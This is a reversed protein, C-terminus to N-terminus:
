RPAPGPEALLAEILVLAPGDTWGRPGIAFGVARGDRAIVFTTPLGIVGYRTAIDGREDLVLPFTLGLEKAYRSIADRDERANIGVIAVGKAALERHLRELVPLEPRCERCWSAWFNVVVVKGRLQGLSLSGGDLTRATFSPPETGPPHTVLNLQKVLSPVVSEEAVAPATAILLLLAARLWHGVYRPRM